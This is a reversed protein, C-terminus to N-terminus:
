SHALADTSLPGETLFFYLQCHSSERSAFLDVQAEGFQSWILRITESPTAVWRPFHASTLACRSCSQAGGSHPCRVAIQAAHSELPPSPPRATVHPTIMSRGAPQHVLCGCHQGYPGVCAQRVATASVAALGSASGVARPLQHALATSAGDLAGLSGARQMYRGLGHQLCRNHCCCAPVHTRLAGRGTSFCPGDLPQLLPSVGTHYEGSTYRLAMGVEPSPLAVLASTTEYSAVRAAHSRSRIGYTGPAESVTEASGCDQRQLFEPLEASIPRARGHPTGDYEGLRVGCRSFLNEACPLAQEKGLQGSAGVPQPATAGSGQSRVVTRTRSGHELCNLIRNGVERLPALAGEAVKTFVRLFLSLRFPLVRYQWARGEFAFWLFPRHHPLISVHFYADKLDIAAFWDRPQICKVIRKQMLMKFPLEHLAQNLVRLDLIPRRGSGKKPVIFYPSYVGAEDRSSPGARNCGKGPPCCDGWALYTRRLSGGFYRSGCQVQSTAQRVSDRLRTSNHSHALSVTQAACAVGVSVTCTAGFSCGVYECHHLSHSYPQITCFASRESEDECFKRLRQLSQSSARPSASRGWGASEQGSAFHTAPTLSSATCRVSDARSGSFESSLSIAREKVIHTGSCFSHNEGQGGEPSPAASDEGDGSILCSGVDGPQLAAKDGGQIIDPGAPVRPCRAGALPEVCRGLHQNLVPRLLEPPRLLAGVVILLCLGPGLPLPQQRHMGGHCSTSSRRQRIRYQELVAPCLGRCHRRVTWGPLHSCRSLASQRYREEGCPQAM